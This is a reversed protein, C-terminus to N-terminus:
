VLFHCLLLIISSLIQNYLIKMFKKNTKCKIESLISFDILKTLNYQETAILHQTIDAPKEVTSSTIKVCAGAVGYNQKKLVHKRCKSSNYVPQITTQYMQLFANVM